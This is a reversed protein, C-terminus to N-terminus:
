KVVENTGIIEILERTIISQRLKNMELTITDILEGANRTANDMATMRAALEAQYSERLMQYLRSKLYFPVLSSMLEEIGPEFLYDDRYQKGDAPNPPLDVPLLVDRIVEQKIVNQFATRVVTLRSLNKEAFAKMIDKSMSEADAFTLHNFTGEYAKELPIPRRRYFKVAKSGVAFLTIRSNKAGAIFKESEKIVNSNFSGCLGKDATMVILGINEAPAQPRFFPLLERTMSRQGCAVRLAKDVEALFKRAETAQRQARAFRAGSVMKMAKTIQRTSKVGQIKKRYEALSPM